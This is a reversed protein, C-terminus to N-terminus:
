ASEGLRRVPWERRPLLASAAQRMEGVSDALSSLGAEALYLGLYLADDSPQGTVRQILNADMAGLRRIALDLHPRVPAAQPLDTMAECGNRFDRIAMTTAMLGDHMAQHVAHNLPVVVAGVVKMTCLREM